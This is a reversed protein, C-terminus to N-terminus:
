SLGSFDTDFWKVGCLGKFIPGIPLGSVDICVMERWTSVRFVAASAQSRANEMRGWYTEFSELYKQDVKRFLLVFARFCVESYAQVESNSDGFGSVKFGV